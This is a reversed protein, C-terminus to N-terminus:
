AQLSIELRPRMQCPWYSRSNRYNKWEAIIERIRAKRRDGMLSYLTMMWGIALPGVISVKYQTKWGYKDKNVEHISADHRLIAAAKKIVDKDTSNVVLIFSKSPPKGTKSHWSPNVTFCGEGELYGALWYIEKIDRKMVLAKE